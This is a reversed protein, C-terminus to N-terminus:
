AEEGDEEAKKKEKEQIKAKAAAEEADTTHTVQPLAVPPHRLLVDQFRRIHQRVTRVCYPDLVMSLRLVPAADAPLKKLYAAGDFTETVYAAESEEEEEVVQLRYSTFACSQPHEALLQRLNVDIDEFSVAPFSLEGGNEPLKVSVPMGTTDLNEKEVQTLETATETSAM